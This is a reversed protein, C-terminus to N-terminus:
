RRASALQECEKQAAERRADLYDALDQLHVGKACKQSPEVRILPLRIEGLSVKRITKDTSLHPFFDRCVEDIPIVTRANYQAMLLFATNLNTKEM